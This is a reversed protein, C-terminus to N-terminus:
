AKRGRAGLVLLSRLLFMGFALVAGNRLVVFFATLVNEANLLGYVIGFGFVLRTVIDLRRVAFLSLSFMLACLIPYGFMGAGGFDCMGSTVLTNAADYAPMGLRPHCVSEEAGQAMIKWKGPWITTPVATAVGLVMLDGGLPEHTELAFLIEAAYGVIFTRTSRNEKLKEDLDEQNDGMMKSAGAEILESLSAGKPLEYNAQRMAFFFKAGLAVVIAGVVLVLLGKPRLMSRFGQGSFYGIMGIVATYMLIRRGQTMLILMIGIVLAYAFWRTSPKLSKVCYLGAAVAPPMASVVLNSLVSVRLSGEEANMETQFGLQGTAIALVAMLLTLILVIFVMRKSIEDLEANPVLKKSDQEGLFLLAGCLMLLLSIAKVVSDRPAYTVSLFDLGTSYGSLFTNLAGFGYALGYSVALVSWPTAFEAVGILRLLGVMGVGALAASSVWLMQPVESALSGVGGVVMCVLILGLVVPDVGRLQFSALFGQPKM